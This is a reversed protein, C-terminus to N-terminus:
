RMKAIDSLTVVDAGPRLGGASLLYDTIKQMPARLREVDAIIYGATVDSGTSHNLL